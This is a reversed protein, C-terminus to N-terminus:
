GGREPLLSLFLPFLKSNHLPLNLKYTLLLKKVSLAALCQFLSGLSTTSDDDRSISFYGPSTISLSM